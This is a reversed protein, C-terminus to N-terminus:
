QILVKVKAVAVGTLKDSVVLLYVGAEYNDANLQFQKGSMKSKSFVEQGLLNFLSINYDDFEDEFTITSEHVVPNPYVVLQKINIYEDLGSDDLYLTNVTTNTVVAPNLDFYINATNYISTGLPLDEKLHFRYKIYGQSGLFNAGSDPLMIEDFMFSVEGEPTMDYTMEHSWALPTISYWELNEDLQDTIVVNIATDTGTNQFRILYDISETSPHINGMPGDGIPTPTKDNPDYACIVVQEIADEYFAVEFGASDLSVNLTSYIIDEVGDPTGIQVNITTSEYFFLEDYTWYINQGVITDPELDASVYYLSDDLQLHVYGSDIIELGANRINLAYNITDNCRPWSGVLDGEVDYYLTDPHIGFNLSDRQEFDPDIIITYFLSDSSIHWDEPLIPALEYTGDPLDSMPGYYFGDSLTVTFFGVPDSVVPNLHKGIEDVDQVGNENLDYYVYGQVDLLVSDIADCDDFGIQFEPSTAWTENLEIYVTEGADMMYFISDVDVLGEAELTLSGCVGSHIRKDTEGVIGDSVILEGDCPATFTYWYAAGDSLGIYHGNEAPLPTASECASGAEYTEQAIGNEISFIVAIVILVYRM